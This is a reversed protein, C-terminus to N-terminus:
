PPTRAAERALLHANACLKTLGVLSFRRVDAQCEPEVVSQGVLDEPLILM